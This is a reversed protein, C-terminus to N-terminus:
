LDRHAFGTCRLRRRLGNQRPLSVGTAQDTVTIQAGPVVAGSPDTVTGTISGFTTQGMAVAATMVMLVVASVLTRARLIRDNGM